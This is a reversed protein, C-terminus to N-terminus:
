TPPFSILKERFWAEADGGGHLGIAQPSPHGTIYFDVDAMVPKILRIARMPGSDKGWRLLRQESVPRGLGVVVQANVVQLQNLIRRINPLEGVESMKPVTRGNQAKWKPVPHSNMLTYDDPNASPFHRSQLGSPHAETIQGLVALLLRLNQGSQGAFPRRPNTDHEVQGPCAGLLVIRPHSNGLRFDVSTECM